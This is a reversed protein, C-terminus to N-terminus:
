VNCYKNFIHKIFTDSVVTDMNGPNFVNKRSRTIMQLAGVDVPREGLIGVSVVHKAIGHLPRAEKLLNVYRRNIKKPEQQGDSIFFVLKPVGPRGGNEPLFAQKEAIKLALDIRTNGGRFELNSLANNFLTQNYYDSFNIDLSTGVRGALSIVSAHTGELSLHFLGILKRAFTKAVTFSDTMTGSSDLIFLVDVRKNKCEHDSPFVSSKTLLEHYHEYLFQM